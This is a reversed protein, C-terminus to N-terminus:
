FDENKTNLLRIATECCLCVIRSFSTDYKDALATISNFLSNPLYITKYLSNTKHLKSFEMIDIGKM